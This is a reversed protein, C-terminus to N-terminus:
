HGVVRFGLDVMFLKALSRWEIGIKLVCQRINPFREFNLWRIAIKLFQMYIYGTEILTENKKETQNERGTNPRLARLPGLGM